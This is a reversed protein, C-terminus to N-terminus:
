SPVAESKPARYAVADALCADAAQLAAADKERALALLAHVYHLRNQYRFRGYEAELMLQVMREIARVAPEPSELVLQDEAM